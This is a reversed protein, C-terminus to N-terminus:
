GAITQNGQVGVGVAGVGVDTSTRACGVGTEAPSWAAEAPHSCTV